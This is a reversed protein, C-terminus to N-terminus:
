IKEGKFDSMSKTWFHVQLLISCIFKLIELKEHKRKSCHVQFRTNALQSKTPKRRPRGVVWWRRSCVRTVLVQVFVSTYSYLYQPLFHVFVTTHIPVFVTNFNCLNFIYKYFRVAWWRRCSRRELEPVLKQVFEQINEWSIRSIALISFCKFIMPHEMSLNCNWHFKPISWVRRTENHRFM